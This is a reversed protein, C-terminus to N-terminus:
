KEDDFTKRPQEDNNRILNLSIFSPKNKEKVPAENPILAGLGKGLASKKNMIDGM